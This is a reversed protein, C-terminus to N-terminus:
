RVIDMYTQKTSFTNDWTRKPSQEYNGHGHASVTDNMHALLEKAVAAAAVAAYAHWDDNKHSDAYDSIGRLVICRFDNMLGAAEMEFCIVGGCETSIRDRITANKIVSNGSAILGYHITPNDSSQRQPRSEIRARDCCDCTDQDRVHEYNAQFLVDRNAPPRKYEVLRPWRKLMEALFAPAKSPTVRQNSRMVNLAQLWESPPPLLFGKQEFNTSTQKGLDYQVIGGHKGTPVGIVVDGLRIDNKRSPVGGGIGVLLRFRISPFTRSLNTAVTAASVNAQYGTPLSAIVVDHGSMRGLIYQNYDDAATALRQHEEDLLYRAASLEVELPCFLAVTYAHHDLTRRSERDMVAGPYIM